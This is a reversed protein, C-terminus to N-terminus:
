AGVKRAQAEYGRWAAEYAGQLGDRCGRAVIELVERWTVYVVAEGRSGCRAGAAWEGLGNRTVRGRMGGHIWAPCSAVAEAVAARNDQGPLFGRLRRAGLGRM